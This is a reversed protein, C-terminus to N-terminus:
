REVTSDPQNKAKDMQIKPELFKGQNSNRWVQGTNTDIVFQEGLRNETGNSICLQFRGYPMVGSSSVSGMVLVICITVLIGIIFSKVDFHTKM